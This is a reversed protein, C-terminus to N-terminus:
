DNHSAIQKYALEADRLFDAVVSFVGEAVAEDYVHSTQNRAEHYSFWKVPDNILHNEAAYRFLERRSIGDVYTSGLNIQLWRNIMKWSLEYTYEFRQIVSDRLIDAPVDDANKQYWKLSESLSDIAKRLSILELM